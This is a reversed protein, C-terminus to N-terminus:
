YPAHEMHGQLPHTKKLQETLWLYQKPWPTKVINNIDESGNQRRISYYWGCLSADGVKVTFKNSGKIRDNKKNQTNQLKMVPYM